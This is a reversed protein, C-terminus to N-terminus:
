QFLSQHYELEYRLSKRDEREMELSEREQFMREMKHQLKREGEDVEVRTKEIVPMKEREVREERKVREEREM